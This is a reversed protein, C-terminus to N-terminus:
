NDYMKIIDEAVERRKICRDMATKEIYRHADRETMKLREILLCKARNVLRIEKMKAELTWNKQELARMRAQTAVLLKVAQFINQRSAPKSLTFIGYQEMEFAAQEYLDQKVLLLVGTTAQQAVATALQTGFEDQLPTDIMLIDIPKDVLIRKTEGASTVTQPPSFQDAPLLESLYRGAKESVTVLLVSAGSSDHYM